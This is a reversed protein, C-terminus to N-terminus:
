EMNAKQMRCESLGRCGAQQTLTVKDSEWKSDDRGVGLEEPLPELTWGVDRGM